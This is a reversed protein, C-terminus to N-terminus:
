RVDFPQSYSMELIPTLGTLRVSLVASAQVYGRTLHLVQTEEGDKNSGQEADGIRGIAEV